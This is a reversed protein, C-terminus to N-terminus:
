IGINIFNGTYEDLHEQMKLLEEPPIQRVVESTKKDVIKIVTQNTNEHTSFEINYNNEDYVANVSNSLKTINVQSSEIKELSSFQPENKTKEDQPKIRSFTMDSRNQIPEVASIM